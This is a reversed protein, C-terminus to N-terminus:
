NVHTNKTTDSGSGGATIPLSSDPFVVGEGTIYQLAYGEPITSEDVWM